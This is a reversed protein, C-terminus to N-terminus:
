ALESEILNLVLNSKVFGIKKAKKTTWWWFESSYPFDETGVKNM